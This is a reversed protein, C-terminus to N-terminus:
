ASNIFYICYLIFLGNFTAYVSCVLYVIYRIIRLGILDDGSVANGSRLAIAGGLTLGVCSINSLVCGILVARNYALIGTLDIFGFLNEDTFVIFVVSVTTIFNFGLCRVAFSIFERRRNRYSQAAFFITSSSFFIITGVLACLALFSAGCASYAGILTDGVGVNATAILADTSANIGYASIQSVCEVIERFGYTTCQEIAACISDLVDSAYYSTEGGRYTNARVDGSRSIRYATLVTERFARLSGLTARGRSDFIQYVVDRSERIFALRGGSLVVQRRLATEAADIVRVEDLTEGLEVGFYGNATYGEINRRVSRTFQYFARGRDEADLRINRNLLDLTIRREGRGAYLGRTGDSSSEGSDVDAILSIISLFLGSTSGFGGRLVRAYAASLTTYVVFSLSSVVSEFSTLVSVILVSVVLLSVDIGVLQVQIGGSIFVVVSDVFAFGGLLAGATTNAFLRVVYTLARIISTLGEILALVLSGVSSGSEVVFTGLTVIRDVTNTAEGVLSLTSQILILAILGTVDLGEGYLSAIVSEVALASAVRTITRLSVRRGFRVADVDFSFISVVLLATFFDVGVALYNV